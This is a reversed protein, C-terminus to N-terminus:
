LQSHRRSCKTQARDFSVESCRRLPSPLCRRLPSDRMTPVLAGLEPGAGLGSPVMRQHVPSGSRCPTVAPDAPWPGGPLCTPRRCASHHVMRSWGWRTGPPVLQGLGAVARGRRLLCAPAGLAAPEFRSGPSRQPRRPGADRGAM